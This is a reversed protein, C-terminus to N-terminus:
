DLSALVKDILGKSFLRGVLNKRAQKGTARFKEEEFDSLMPIIQM